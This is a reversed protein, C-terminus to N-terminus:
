RPVLLRMRVDEELDSQLGHEVGRQIATDMKRGRLWGARLAVCAGVFNGTACHILTKKGHHTRLAKDFELLNVQKLDNVGEIPLHTYTIGQAEVYSKEDFTLEDRPQLNIIHEIGADAITAIKNADLAGTVVTNPDPFKAGTIVRKLAMELTSENANGSDANSDETM